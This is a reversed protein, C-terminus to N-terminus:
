AKLTGEVRVREDIDLFSKDGAEAEIKGFVMQAKLDWGEPVNWTAKVEDDIIPNYHQLNAGLGLETLELWVGYQVMGQDHAAWVPFNAAYSPFQEQLAEVAHRNEFFLISGAAAAFGNIKAETPAFKEAPVRARLTEMVISWLKKHEDGYLIIVRQDQMNFPSPVNKVVDTIRATLDNESVTIQDSLAYISRRQQIVTLLDKM